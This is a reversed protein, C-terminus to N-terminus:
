HVPNDVNNIHTRRLPLNPKPAGQPRGRRAESLSRLSSTRRPAFRRRGSNPHVPRWQNQLGPIKAPALQFRTARCPVCQHPGLCVERGHDYSGAGVIVVIAIWTPDHSRRSMRVRREPLASGLSVSIWFGPCMRCTNEKPLSEDRPRSMRTLLTGGPDALVDLVGCRRGRSKACPPRRM